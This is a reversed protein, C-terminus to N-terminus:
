ISLVWGGRCRLFKAQLIRVTPSGVHEVTLQEKLAEGPLGIGFVRIKIHVKFGVCIPINQFQFRERRQCFQLRTLAYAM